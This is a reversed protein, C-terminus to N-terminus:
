KWKGYFRAHRGLEILSPDYIIESLSKMTQKRFRDRREVGRQVQQLGEVASVVGRLGRHLPQPHDHFDRTSLPFHCHLPIAMSALSLSLSPNNCNSFSSKEFSM